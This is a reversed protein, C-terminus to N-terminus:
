MLEKRKTEVNYVLREKVIWKVKNSIMSLYHVPKTDYVSSAIFCSYGLDGELKEVKVTGRVEDATKRNKAEQQQVCSPIDRGGKRTVGHVLPKM